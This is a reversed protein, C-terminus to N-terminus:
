QVQLLRGLDALVLKQALQGKPTLGNTHVYLVTECTKWQQVYM